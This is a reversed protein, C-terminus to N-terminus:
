GAQGGEVARLGRQSGGVHMRGFAAAVRDLQRGRDRHGYTKRVLDGKDEHGLQVAVDEDPVGAEILLTACTHRLEHFVLPAGKGTEELSRRHRVALWHDEPLQLMFADRVPGWFHSYTRHTFRRQYRPTYFVESLVAHRPVLAVAERAQPPFVVERVLSNKPTDRIRTKANMAARVVLRDGRLDSHEVALVEGVRIGTYAAFLILSRHWQGHLRGALSALKEVEDPTLAGRGLEIAQQARGSSQRLESFPNHVVVGARRGFAFMARLPAIQYGHAQGWAFAEPVTISAADRQGYAGEFLATNLRNHEYTSQKWLKTSAGADDLWRERLGAVTLSGVAGVRKQRYEVEAATAERKTDFSGVYQREGKVMVRAIWKGQKNQSPM